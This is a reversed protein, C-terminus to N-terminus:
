VNNTKAFLLDAVFNTYNSSDMRYRVISIRRNAESSDFETLLNIANSPALKGSIEVTVQWFIGSETKLEESDILTLRINTLLPNIIAEIEKLAQAEAISRSDARPLASLKTDMRAKYEDLLKDSVSQTAMNKMRASIAINQATLASYSSLTASLRDFMTIYVSICIALIMWQLRKNEQFEIAVHKIFNWIKNM